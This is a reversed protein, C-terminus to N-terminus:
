FIGFDGVATPLGGSPEVSWDGSMHSIDAWGGCPRLTVIDVGGHAFPVRVGQTNVWSQCVGSRWVMLCLSCNLFVTDFPHYIHQFQADCTKWFLYSMQLWVMKLLSIVGCLIMEILQHPLLLFVVLSLSPEREWLEWETAQLHYKLREM